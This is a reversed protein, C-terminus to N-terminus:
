LRTVCGQAAFVPEQVLGFFPVTRLTTGALAWPTCTNWSHRAKPLASGVPARVLTAPANSVGRDVWHGRDPFCFPGEFFQSRRHPTPEYPYCAGTHNALPLNQPLSEFTIFVNNMRVVCIMRWRTSPTRFWRRPVFWPSTISARVCGCRMDCASATAVHCRRKRQYLM